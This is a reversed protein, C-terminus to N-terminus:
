GIPTETEMVKALPGDKSAFRAYGPKYDPGVVGYLDKFLYIYAIAKEEEYKWDVLVDQVSISKQLRGEEMMYQRCNAFPINAKDSWEPQDPTSCRNYLWVDGIIKDKKKLYGYAVKGDDDFTLKYQECPSWFDLMLGIDDSDNM